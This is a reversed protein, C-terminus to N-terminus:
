SGIQSHHWASRAFPELGSRAALAEAVVQSNRLVETESSRALMGDRMLIEGAVMVTDAGGRSSFVLNQVPNI